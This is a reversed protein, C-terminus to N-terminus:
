NREDRKPLLANLLGFMAEDPTFLIAAEGNADRLTLLCAAKPRPTNCYGYRRAPIATRKEKRDIKRLSLLDDAAIRCVTIQRRGNQETVVFDFQGSEHQELTYTYSRFCWRVAIYLGATLAAIAALRLLTWLGTQPAAIWVAFGLTLLLASLLIPMRRKTPPTFRCLIREIM